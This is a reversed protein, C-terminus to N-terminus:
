EQVPLGYALLVPVETSLECRSPAEQQHEPLQLKLIFEPLDAKLFLMLYQTFVNGM